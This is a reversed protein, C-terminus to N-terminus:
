GKIYQGSKKEVGKIYKKDEIKVNKGEDRMKKLQEDREKKDNTEMVVKSGEIIKFQKPM